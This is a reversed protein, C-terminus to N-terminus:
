RQASEERPFGFGLVTEDPSLAAFVIRGVGFKVQDGLTLSYGNPARYSCGSNRDVDVHARPM